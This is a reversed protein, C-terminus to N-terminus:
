KKDEGIVKINNKYSLSLNIKILQMKKGGLQM